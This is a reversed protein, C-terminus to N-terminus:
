RIKNNVNSVLCLLISKEEVLNSKIPFSEPDPTVDLHRSFSSDQSFFAKLALCDIMFFIKINKKEKKRSCIEAYM